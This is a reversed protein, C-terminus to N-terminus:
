REGDHDGDGPRCVACNDAAARCADHEVANGVTAPDVQWAHIITDCIRCWGVYWCGPCVVRRGEMEPDVGALDVRWGASLRRLYMYFLPDALREATWVEPAGGGLRSPAPRACRCCRVVYCLVPEVTLGHPPPVRVPLTVTAPAGAGVSSTNM